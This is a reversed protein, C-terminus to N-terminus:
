EEEFPHLFIDVPWLNQLKSGTKADRSEREDGGLRGSNYILVRGAGTGFPDM